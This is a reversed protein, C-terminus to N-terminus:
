NAISAKTCAEVFATFLPMVEPVREAMMEPHWQVACVFRDGTWEMGEVLGDPSFAAAEFGTGLDKVAQHHYSNVPLTETQYIHALKSNQDLTVDHVSHYIPSKVVSHNFCDPRQKRLDQFLTGEAAVNLLQMGRCIGLVPIDSDFLVKKALAVEHLDRKPEIEGLEYSPYEGYLRSDVDSGGTFLIGDLKALLLEATEASETVPLIVPIGGAREISLIYDDSLLQWEQGPLGLGTKLGASSESSYNACIGILPKM